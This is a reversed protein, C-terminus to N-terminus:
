YISPTVTGEPAMNKVINLVRKSKAYLTPSLQLLSGYRAGHLDLQLAGQLPATLMVIRPSSPDSYSSFALHTAGEKEYRPM